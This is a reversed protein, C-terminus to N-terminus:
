AAESERSIVFELRGAADHRVDLSAHEFRHAALPALFVRAGDHEVVQDSEHPEEATAVRFGERDTHRCIRLGATAPLWSQKPIRSVAEHAQKTMTLM